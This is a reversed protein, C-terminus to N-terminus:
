KKKEIEDVKKETINEERLLRDLESKMQATEDHKSVKPQGSPTQTPLLSGGSYSPGSTLRVVPKDKGEPSVTVDMVGSVASQVVGVTVEALQRLSHLRGQLQLKPVPPLESVQLNSKEVLEQSLRALENVKAEVAELRSNVYAEKAATTKWQQKLEIYLITAMVVYALLEILLEAGADVLRKEPFPSLFNHRFVDYSSRYPHRIFVRTAEGVSRKPDLFVTKDYTDTSDKPLPGYTM